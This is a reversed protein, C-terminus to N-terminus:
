PASETVPRLQVERVWKTVCSVFEDHAEIWPFHGCNAFVMARARPISAAMEVTLFAPCMLDCDGAVALTPVGVDALSGRFDSAAMCAMHRLAPEPRVPLSDFFADRSKPELNAFVLPSLARLQAAFELQNVSPPSVLAALAADPAGRARAHELIRGGDAVWAAAGGITVLGRLRQPRMVAYGLAIFAGFSHGMLVFQDAGVHEAIRDIDDYLRELTPPADARDTSRHFGRIDVFVLKLVSGLADLGPRLYDLTQGAGHLVVCAPGDGCTEFYLSDGDVDLYPM